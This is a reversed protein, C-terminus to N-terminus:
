AALRYVAWFGDWQDPDSRHLARLHSLGDGGFEGWRMGGMSLRQNILRKCASEVAGTGIQWGKKLYEPYNMRGVHNRFYTRASELAEGVGTAVCAPAISDLISRVKEGGEHKLTHCWSKLLGEREPETKGLAQALPTLYGVPHQFDLICTARPFQVQIFSELGSGADTRAIWREADNMGVQGGQRRLLPGLEDLGYFGALYRAGCPECPMSTADGERPRPNFIMGVTVMRGDVKGADPGQMMVGTADVSIYACTKGEADENWKWKAAAGQSGFLRGADLAAGLEEGVAETVRQVTSESLRLGTTKTLMRKATQVFSEEIGWLTVVEECGPTLRLSSLRLDRDWPIDGHGCSSCHYYAREIRIEGVLSIFTKPRYGVFRASAGSAAGCHPCTM